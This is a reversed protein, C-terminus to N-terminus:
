LNVTWVPLNYGNPHFDFREYLRQSRHNSSQTNVTIVYMGRRVFRHILDTLLTSGVGSGQAGPAVALRALHGGEYYYTSLQYGVITENQLAVTCIASMRAAQRMEEPSLQWPPAFATQDIQWITDLDTPLFARIRLDNVSPEPLLKSARRLTIVDERYRFSLAPLKESIWDRLALLSVTEVQLARLDSRLAEFLAYLVTEPSAQDHVGALRIWSTQNLPTSAAMLGVLRGRQWALRMPATNGNLWHDTDYWDLHSHVYYNRFMLDRVAQRYRREYSTLTLPLAPAAM